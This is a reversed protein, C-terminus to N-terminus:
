CEGKKKAARRERRPVGERMKEAKEDLKKRRYPGVFAHEIFHELIDMMTNLDDPAPRWGRHASASGADVLDSVRQKELAGIHGAQVLAELKEEFSQNSHIGLLESAVDFSTRIGIAALMRLGNNLAGYLEGLTENLLEAKEAQIGIDTMWDPRSRKELTPWYSVDPSYVMIHNGCEDIDDYYDESTGVAKQVFVYDCGCCELVSWTTRWQIYQDGGSQTYQGRINCNRIGGCQSCEAKM